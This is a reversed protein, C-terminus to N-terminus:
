TSCGPAVMVEVWPDVGPVGEPPLGVPPVAVLVLVEPADNPVTDLKLRIAVVNTPSVPVVDAGAL